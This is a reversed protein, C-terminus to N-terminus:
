QMGTQVGYRLAVTEVKTWATKKANEMDKRATTEEITESNERFLGTGTFKEEPPRESAKWALFAEQFDSPCSRLDIKEIQFAYCNWNGNIETMANQVSQKQLDAKNPGCGGVISAGIAAVLLFLAISKM